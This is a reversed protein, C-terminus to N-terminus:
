GGVETTSAQTEVTLKPVRAVTPIEIPAPMAKQLDKYAEVLADHEKKAQIKAKHARVDDQHKVLGNARKVTKRGLTELARGIALSAGIEDSQKDSPDCKAVGTSVIIRTGFENQFIRATYVSGIKEIEMDLFVTEHEYSKSM